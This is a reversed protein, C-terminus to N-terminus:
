QAVDWQSSRTTEACSFVMKVALIVSAIPESIKVLGAAFLYITASFALCSGVRREVLLVDAHRYFPKQVRWYSLTPSPLNYDTGLSSTEEATISYFYNREGFHLVPLMSSEWFPQHVMSAQHLPFFKRFLVLLYIKWLINCLCIKCSSSTIVVLAASALNKKYFLFHVFSFDPKVRRM